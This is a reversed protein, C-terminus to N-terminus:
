GHLDAGIQLLLLPYSLEPPDILLTSRAEVWFADLQEFSHLAAGAARKPPLLRRQEIRHLAPYTLPLRDVRVTPPVVEYLVYYDRSGDPASNPAYSGYTANFVGNTVVAGAAIERVVNVLGARTVLTGKLGLLAGFGVSVTGSGSSASCEPITVKNIRSWIKVGAITGPSAGSAVTITETQTAGNIDLGELVVDFPFSYESDARVTTVTANRGYTIAGSAVVGNLPVNTGVEYVLEGDGSEPPTVALVFADVDAVAPNTFERSWLLSANEFTADIQERLLSVEGAVGASYRKGNVLHSRARLSIGSGNESPM